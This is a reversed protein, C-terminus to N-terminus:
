ESQSQSTIEQGHHEVRKLLDVMGPDSTLSLITQSLKTYEIWKEKNCIPDIQSDSVIITADESPSLMSSAKFMDLLAENAIESRSTEREFPAPSSLLDLLFECESEVNLIKNLIEDLPKQPPNTLYM